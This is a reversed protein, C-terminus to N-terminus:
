KPPFMLHKGTGDKEQKSIRPPFIYYDELVSNNITDIITERTVFENKGDNSIMVAWYINNKKTYYVWGDKRLARLIHKNISLDVVGESAVAGNEYYTKSLGELKGDKYLRESELGGNDYYSKYLGELEDDKFNAEIKINGNEYYEKSLGELKDDKFNGEIKINGNEYYVKSLGEKKGDKYNDELKLDGNEYYGKFLGERKDDKYNDERKLNGNEYYVKSLGNLKDDKYNGKALLNGNQYYFKAEGERKGNLYHVELQKEGSKYPRNFTYKAIGVKYATKSGSVASKEFSLDDMAKGLEKIDNIDAFVLQVALMM